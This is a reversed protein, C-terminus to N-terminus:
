AEEVVCAGAWLGNIRVVRRGEEDSEGTFYGIFLRQVENAANTLDHGTVSAGVGGCEQLNLVSVEQGQVGVTDETPPTSTNPPTASRNWIYGRYWSRAVRPADIYVTCLDKPRWKLALVMGGPEDHLELPGGKAVQLNELRELRNALDNWREGSILFEEGPNVRPLKKPM